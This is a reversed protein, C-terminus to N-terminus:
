SWRGGLGNVVKLASSIGDEHFGNGWYAGCYWTNRVGNIEMWRDQAAVSGLSFVPHAYHYQGIINDPNIHDSANLTVCFTTDSQLGQLINMNYTLVAREQTNGDLQYNWAAWARKNAPLLQEDTHLVVDNDQYPIATLIENEIADSDVLLALAQDSHCAFVVEDYYEIQGGAFILQVGAATRKVKEINANTTIKEAFIRTLPELYAHSGGKVVRWQPRDNINLLGHNKFFRVFFLLPFQQVVDTSASWIAACMPVLYHSEFLGVYRNLKLYEGLTIDREIKNDAFDALAQRNFRVINMLMRWYQWRLLNARQAFLTNISSGSYELGTAECSVSFSMDTAQNEVGLEDLLRIFNPYTWDNYVIFGTDIAWQKGQLDFVKTATHGGIREAAEFVRVAFRSAGSSLKGGHQHLFYACSLGSIGAGIIAVSKQKENNM